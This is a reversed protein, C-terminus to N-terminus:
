RQGRGTTLLEIIQYDCNILENTLNDLRGPIWINM